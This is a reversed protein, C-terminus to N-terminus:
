LGWVERPSLLTSGVICSEYSKGEEKSSSDRRAWVEVGINEAESGVSAWFWARDHFVQLATRQDARLTCCHQVRVCDCM